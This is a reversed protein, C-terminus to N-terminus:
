RNLRILEGDRIAVSDDCWAVVDPDHTAILITANMSALLALVQSTEDRGLGATPEDLVYIDPGSVMGRVIGVRAREGRSLEGFKSTRDSAVGLSLLDNFPDRAAIRGSTLVDIAFGSTLGPDTAVYSVHRRYTQEDLDEISVGGITIRGEDPPELRALARLLTSKGTGSEGIIAVRSRPAFGLTARRVLTHNGERVSVSELRLTTDLPWPASSLHRVVDLQELREGGGSVDIASRLSHTVVNLTEFTALGILASVVLWVTSTAPYLVLGGISFVSTMGVIFTSRRRWRRLSQEADNLALTSRRAREIAVSERRLLVLEPVVASLEVTDARFAGRATRLRRDLAFEKSSCWLLAAVSVVQLIFLFLAYFLWHGQSPLVAIAVDGCFLVVLADVLPIFFRLWLGQLEDTDGLARELLDGSAYASWTSYNLRGVSHILWQRWHTVATYGLRHASM